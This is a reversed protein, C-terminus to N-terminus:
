AVTSRLNDTYEVEVRNFNSIKLKYVAQLFKEIDGVKAWYFLQKTM